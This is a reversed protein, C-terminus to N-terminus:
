VVCEHLPSVRGCQVARVGHKIQILKDACWDLWYKGWAVLPSRLLRRKVFVHCEPSDYIVVAPFFPLFYVFARFLNGRTEDVESVLLVVIWVLSGALALKVLLERPRLLAPVPSRVVM